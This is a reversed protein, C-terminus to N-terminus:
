NSYTEKLEEPVENSTILTFHKNEEIITLYAPSNKDEVLKKWTRLIKIMEGYPVTYKSDDAAEEALEGEFSIIVEDEIRTINYMDNGCADYDLYSKILWDLYFDTEDRVYSQLFSGLMYIDEAENEYRIIKKLRYLNQIEKKFFLKEM